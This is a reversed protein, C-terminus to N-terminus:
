NVALQAHACTSHVYVCTMIRRSFGCCGCCGCCCVVVVVVVVVVVCNREIDFRTVIQLCQDLALLDQLNHAQKHTRNSRLFATLWQAPVVNPAGRACIDANGTFRNSSPWSQMGISFCLSCALVSEFNTSVVHSSSRQRNHGVRRRSGHNLVNSRIRSHRLQHGRTVVALAVPELLRAQRLLQHQLLQQQRNGRRHQRVGRGSVAATTVLGERQPRARRPRPLLELGAKCVHLVRAVVGVGVALQPLPDLDLLILLPLPHLLILQSNHLLLLLFQLKRLQKAVGAAHRAAVVAVGAVVAVVVVVM